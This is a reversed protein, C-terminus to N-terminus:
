LYHGGRDPNQWLVQREDYIPMRLPSPHIVALKFNPNLRTNPMMDGNQSSTTAARKPLLDPQPSSTAGSGACEEHIRNEHHRGLDPPIGRVQATKGPM